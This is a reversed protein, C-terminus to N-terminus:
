TRIVGLATLSAATILSIVPVAFAPQFVPRWAMLGCCAPMSIGGIVFGWSAVASEAPGLRAHPLTLAFFINLIGLGIFSIHGLRVMRRPLAGYGGLWEPRQFFLGLIMGSILGLAIWSWGFALNLLM